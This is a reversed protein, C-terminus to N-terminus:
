SLLSTIAIIKSVPMRQVQHRKEILHTYLYNLQDKDQLRRENIKRYVRERLNRDHDELFKAAQQLTYEHGKVEVTMKGAIQGYQQQM